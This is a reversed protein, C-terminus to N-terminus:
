TSMVLAVRGAHENRRILAHAEEAESLAFTRTVVARIRRQALLDLVRAIEAASVYRSSHIELARSQLESPDIDIRPREGGDKPPSGVLVLRGGMGLSDLAARLTSTTGVLDIVADVGRGETLARAREAIEEKRVDITEEAGLERALALKADGIDAAFVRADSLRAMQVVHIGVGGGAGIVLVSDDARLAAERCARYPTAIADSAIAAAVDDVGDPVAVINRAPLRVYEAYGGDIDRGISGGRDTCLSERGDRCFRCQGCTLYYHCTVRQGIKLNTVAAGIKTVTGCIEHGPIRPYESVRGSAFGKLLTLGVGCALVRVLVDNPGLKPVPVDRLELPRGPGTLVMAKM